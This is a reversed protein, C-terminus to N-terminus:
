QGSVGPSSVPSASPQPTQAPFYRLVERALYANLQPQKPVIGQSFIKRNIVLVPAHWGGLALAEGMNEVWPKIVLKVRKDGELGLERLVTKVQRVTLECEECLRDPVNMFFQKGTIRYITIEIQKM